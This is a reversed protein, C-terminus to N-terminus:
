VVDRGFKHGAAAALYRPVEDIDVLRRRGITLSPITGNAIMGRYAYLTLGSNNGDKTLKEFGEKTLCLNMQRGGSEERSESGRNGGDM